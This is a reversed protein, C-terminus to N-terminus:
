LSHSHYTAGGTIGLSLPWITLSATSLKGGARNYVCMRLGVRMCGRYVTASATILITGSAQRRRPRACASFALWGSAGILM